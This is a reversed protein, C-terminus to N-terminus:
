SRLTTGGGVVVVVVVVVVRVTRHGSPKAAPLFPRELSFSGRHARVFCFGKMKGLPMATTGRVPTGIQKSTSAM